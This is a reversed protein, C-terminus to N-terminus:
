IMDKHKPWKVSVCQSANANEFTNTDFICICFLFKRFMKWNLEYSKLVFKPM